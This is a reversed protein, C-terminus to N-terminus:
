EDRINKGHGVVELRARDDGNIACSNAHTAERNETAGSCRRAGAARLRACAQARIVTPHSWRAFRAPERSMVPLRSVWVGGGEYSLPYLM